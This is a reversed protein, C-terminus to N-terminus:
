KGAYAETRPRIPELAGNVVHALGLNIIFTRAAFRDGTGYRISCDFCGDRFEIQAASYEGGVQRKTEWWLALGLEPNMLSLDPLGPTQKSARAQSLNRVNINFAGFVKIVETQEEKELANEDREFNLQAAPSPAYGNHRAITEARLRDCRTAQMISTVMTEFEDSM